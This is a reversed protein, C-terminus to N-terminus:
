SEARKKLALNMLEFGHKTKRLAGKLFRVTIGSFDEGHVFRTVEESIPEFRFYHEGDFIGPILVKGRWRIENEDSRLVIPAFKMGGGGPPSLEVRIKKGPSLGGAISRVFPNWESYRSTDSLIERIRHAPANILISTEITCKM